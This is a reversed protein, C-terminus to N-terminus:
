VSDIYCKQAAEEKMSTKHTGSVNSTFALVGSGRDDELGEWM